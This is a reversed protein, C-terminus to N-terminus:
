DPSVGTVSELYERQEGNEHVTIKKEIRRTQENYYRQQTIKLHDQTRSDEITLNTLAQMINLYDFLFRGGPKLAGAVAQIVRENEEDSNFYGFSTFLSLVVDFANTFPIHRM